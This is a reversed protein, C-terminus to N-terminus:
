RDGDGSESFSEFCFDYIRKADEIAQEADEDTYYEKPAGSDFGNPYRTPIYHRDLRMAAKILEPPVDAVNSLDRLLHTVSHGWGEGGKALIVGKVAKEASQQAAFCAWDYDGAKEANRAHGLDGEAQKLWDVARNGM